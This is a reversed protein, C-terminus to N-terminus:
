LESQQELEDWMELHSPVLKRLETLFEVRTGPEDTLIDSLMGIVRVHGRERLWDDFKNSLLQALEQPSNTLILRFVELELIDMPDVPFKAATELCEAARRTDGDILCLKALFLWPQGWDWDPAHSLLIEFYKRASDRKHSNMADFALSEIENLDLNSDTMASKEMRM